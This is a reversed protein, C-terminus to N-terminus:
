PNFTLRLCRAEAAIQYHEATKEPSPGPRDLHDVLKALFARLEVAHDLLRQAQPDNPGFREGLDSLEILTM